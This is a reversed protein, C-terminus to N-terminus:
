TTTPVYQSPDTSSPLSKVQLDQSVARQYTTAFPLLINKKPRTSTCPQCFAPLHVSTHYSHAQSSNDRANISYTPPFWPPPPPPPPLRLASQSSQHQRFTLGHLRRAPIDPVTYSTIPPPSGPLGLPLICLAIRIARVCPLHTNPLILWSVFKWCWLM